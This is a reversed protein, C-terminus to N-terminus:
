DYLKEKALIQINSNREAYNLIYEIDFKRGDYVIVDEPRIIAEPNYRMEIKHSVENKLGVLFQENGTVPKIGARTNILLNWTEEPEGFENDIYTVRMVAIIKNLNGARIM